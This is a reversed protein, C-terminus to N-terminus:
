NKAGYLTYTLSSINGSDMYLQIADIDNNTDRIQGGFVFARFNDGTDYRHGFGHYTNGRTAHAGTRKPIIHITFQAGESTDNGMGSKQFGGYGTAKSNHETYDGSSGAVGQNIWSYNANAGLFSSGGDTSFKAQLKAGDNAPLIQAIVLTFMQYATPLSIDVSAVSSDSSAAAIKVFDTSIGTLNAGSIAPLAGTLNAATLATLNGSTTINNAFARKIAGM